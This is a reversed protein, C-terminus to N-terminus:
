ASKSKSPDYRVNIHIWIVRAFRFFFVFLIALVFLLLGFSAFLSLGLVWHVIAVFGLCFFGTFIYSLFMAGYYFGPEPWYSQRCHSCQQPMEFPKQFSFTSTEFLDGEHCRPCKFHAISYLPNGKKILSM